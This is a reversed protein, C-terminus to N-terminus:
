GAFPTVPLGRVGPDAVFISGAAPETDEPLNERSTTIYLRDLDPGGFTCSTVQRVPVDVVESLRGDPNYRHVKGGHNLAVWVGGEADVTLGDPRGQMPAFRVFERRNTLQGNVYDFRSTAGTETDNFYARTGDPSWAIGNAITLGTLVTHKATGNWRYLQAVGRQRDYAMTGVYFRGEPDCGGENCRLDTSPRGVPQAPLFLEIVPTLDSLDEEAALALHRETAVIAGGDVRPRIVAAIASGVETRTPTGTPGLTVVAGHLMDVFRLANLVPWWVPGEAHYAIRGTLRQARV